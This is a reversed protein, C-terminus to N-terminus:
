MAGRLIEEIEKVSTPRPNGPTNGDAFAAEALAPIDEAKVGIEPLTQPIGIDKSLSVVSDVAAKRYEAESMGDTGEVGMAKAIDRYKSGTHDANYKLIFPLMVANAVGHPTDYLGGFQHAISHVIGLGSNSFGMGTIYQGVAVQMIADENQALVAGRLNRGILEIAKLNMMDTMVWAGKTIYGEFAHTLADMGTAAALDKPMKGTLEPDVVAVIPICHADVCPFKVKREPDTIVYNKTVESATGATSTVAILPVSKNKTPAEYVLSKVDAFEPNNAIIGIAKATDMASGGGIAIVLDAGSKKYAAVGDTVNQITPNQKFDSFVDYPFKIDDLLKLVKSSVGAKLSTRGAVVLAKKFGRAKIEEPVKTVAGPGFYATENLIMRHILVTEGKEKL